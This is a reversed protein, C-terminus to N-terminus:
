KQPFADEAMGCAVLEERPHLASRCSIFKARSRSAASCYIRGSGAQVDRPSLSRKREEIIERVFFHKPLSSSILSRLSKLDYNMLFLNPNNSAALRNASLRPRAM